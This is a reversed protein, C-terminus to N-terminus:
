CFFENESRFFLNLFSQIELVSAGYVSHRFLIIYTIKLILFILKKVVNGISDIRYM